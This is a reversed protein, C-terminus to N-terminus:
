RAGTKRYARVSLPVLVALLGLLIAVVAPVPHQVPFAGSPGEGGPNGFLQRVAASAVISVPNWEAVTRLWGPLNELPM